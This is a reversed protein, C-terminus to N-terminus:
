EIIQKVGSISSDDEARIVQKGSRDKSRQEVNEIMSGRKAEITQSAWVDLKSKMEEVLKRLDATEKIAAQYQEAIQATAGGSEALGQGFTAAIEDKDDPHTQSVTEVVQPAQEVLIQAAAENVEAQTRIQQELWIGLASLGKKAVELLSPLLEGAVQFGIKALAPAAAAIEFGVSALVPHIIAALVSAVLTSAPFNKVWPSGFLDKLAHKFEM